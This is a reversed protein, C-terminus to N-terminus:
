LQHVRCRGEAAGPDGTCGGAGDRPHGVPDDVPGGVHDNNSGIAPAACRGDHVRDRIRPVSSESLVPPVNLPVLLYNDIEVEGGPVVQSDLVSYGYGRLFELIQDRTQGHPLWGSHIEVIIVPHHNRLIEISGRLALLEAGEIDIKIVKPVLRHNRSFTDLTTTPVAIQTKDEPSLLPVDGAIVLSNRFSIGRNVLYFPVAQSDCDSVAVPALQVRHLRNVRLHYALIEAMPPSPEFAVVTGAPGVCRAAKLSIWGYHAGVDFLVDGPRLFRAIWDVLFPQTIATNQTLLRPHVWVLQGGVWKPVPVLPNASARWTRASEKLLGHLKPIRTRLASNVQTWLPVTLFGLLRM